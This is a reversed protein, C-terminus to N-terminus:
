GACLAGCLDLFQHGLLLLLMLQWERAQQWIELGMSWISHGQASSQTCPNSQHPAPGSELTCTGIRARLAQDPRCLPGVGSM